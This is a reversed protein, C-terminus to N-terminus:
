RDAAKRGWLWAWLKYNEIEEHPQLVIFLTKFGDCLSLTEIWLCLRIVVTM